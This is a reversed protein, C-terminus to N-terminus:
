PHHPPRSPENEGGESVGNGGAGAFGSQRYVIVPAATVAGTDTDSVVAVGVYGVPRYHQVEGACADIVQPIAVATTVRNRGNGM